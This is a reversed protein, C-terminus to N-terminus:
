KMNENEIDEIMKIRIEHREGAFQANIWTQLIEIAEKTTNQGAGLALINADNHMKAYEAMEKNYCNACRIGKYKNAVIAVGLGTGCILIGKECEKTQVKKAVENVIKPYDVREESNTGCDIYEIKNEDLFKEIEAKLKFGRHDSGIAIKM